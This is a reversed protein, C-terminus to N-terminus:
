VISAVRIIDLQAEGSMFEVESNSHGRWSEIGGPRSMMDETLLDSPHINLEWCFHTTISVQNLNAHKGEHADSSGCAAAISVTEHEVPVQMPSLKDVQTLEFQPIYTCEEGKTCYGSNDGALQLEIVLPYKASESM